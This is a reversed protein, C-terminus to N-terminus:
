LDIKVGFALTMQPPGDPYDPDLGSNNSKWILGLNNAYLYLQMHSFPMQKWQSKLINYSLNLDQFRAHDGKEMLTSSFLYFTNRSTNIAPPISPVNTSLEDGPRQWRRTYDAHGGQGRLVSNYSVSSRRFYYGLRYSMNISLSINKWSFSNRFAGFVAPRAPGSYIMSETTTGAIIRSYNNSPQGELVGMPDGTNPDLGAWKYSYFAYMPRGELPYTGAGAGSTIYINPSTKVPYDIVKESVYSFFLNSNWNFEGKVNHTNFVLDIGKGKTGATNGTYTEIGTSPALAINGILDKGNKQYFELSGGIRDNLFEFDIGFNLMQVKEWKLTPNPPNIITTYPLRTLYDVSSGFRATTLASVSKNINGNFGYTLRLKLYPLSSVHYFSEKSLNWSGGASWLPAGKQNTEVGFLNSQDLRASGTLTYRQYLTYSFNAYYSLYHDTLESQTDNNLITNNTSTPNIYSPFTSIYDVQKSAAHTNDYGYLRYGNTSSHYDRAEFGALAVFRQNSSWQKEYAVQSRLSKNISLGSNEDKIGGLPIPRILSGGSGPQTFRNILNRAYYSDQSQLNRTRTTSRAHQYLIEFRFADTIKYGMTANFRYDTLGSKNDAIRIEDLPKYDWNLLGKQMAQQTFNDRYDKAIALPNGMDDALRAYPYLPSTGTVSSLSIAGPGPNNQRNSNETYYIGLNLELKKRYFTFGNTFNLTTRYQQNGILNSLNRDHGASVLFQHNDSGGTLNLAYQQSISKRYFFKEIDQRVDQNKLSEIKNQATEESIIGDRQAVLLEVVPTLPYKNVSLESSRYYGTSFLRQEIDIFDAVPMQQRYFPDPKNGIQVNSNFSVKFVQNQRGKKMTIVIVGNGARSGWISAAAADKLVTISEVDNPNLNSIDGEYPFNDIVILPKANGFITSQGRISVPNAGAGTNRNFVLGPTVDALRDLIGAGTRRNLLENDIFVFSGTARDKPIMQYGTAVVEGLQNANESLEIQQVGATFTNVPIQISLYGLYTVLLTDQSAPGSISFRGVPDSITAAGNSKLQITAGPLPQRGLKSVVSGTLTERNQAITGFCIAICIVGFFLSKRIM